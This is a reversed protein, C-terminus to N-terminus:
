SSSAGYLVCRRSSFDHVSVISTIANALKDGGVASPEIPNAYDEPSDFLVRLDLVPMGFRNAARTIVDNFGALAM